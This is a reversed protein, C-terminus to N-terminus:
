VSKAHLERSLVDAAHERLMLTQKMDFLESELRDAYFYLEDPAEWERSVLFNAMQSLSFQMAALNQQCGIIRSLLAENNNTHLM